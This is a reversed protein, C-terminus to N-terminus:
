ILSSAFFLQSCTRATGGYVSLCQCHACLSTGEVGHTLCCGRNSLCAPPGVLLATQWAPRRNFCSCIAEQLICTFSMDASHEVGSSANGISPSLCHGPLEVLPTSVLSAEMMLPLVQAMQVGLLQQGCWDRSCYCHSQNCAAAESLSLLHQRGTMAILYRHQRIPGVSPLKLM